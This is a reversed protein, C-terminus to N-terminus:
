GIMGCAAFHNPAYEKLEQPEDKKTCDAAYPCRTCFRCGKPANLPSPLDGKLRIRDDSGARHMVSSFLAKTYPHLPHAFIEDASGKEVLVGLYMVGIEDSIHRVVSLDHSIFLYTLKREEQMKMLINIVQAQISVDLAAIPEDCVLFEPDLALARAIGIRQRQGGSLEHPFRALFSEPLNVQHLLEKLVEKREQASERYYIKRGESLIAEVNMRPDLCSYPDQFIMQANKHFEKKQARNQEALNQGDFIVEGETPQYLGMVTRGCTTKGCGSEGVLSFTKQSAISFSVDDVAKLVSGNVGFYKKLRNVTLFDSM